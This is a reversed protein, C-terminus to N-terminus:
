EFEPLADQGTVRENGFRIKIRFIENFESHLEKDVQYLGNMICGGGDKLFLLKM